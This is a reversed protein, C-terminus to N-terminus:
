QGLLSTRGIALSTPDVGGTGSLMTPPNKPNRMGGMIAAVDPSKKTAARMAEESKRQAQEQKAFAMNQADEQQRMARKQAKAAQQGQQVTAGLSGLALTALAISTFAPM